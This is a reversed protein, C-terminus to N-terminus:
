VHLTRVTALTALKRAAINYVPHEDNQLQTLPQHRQVMSLLQKLDESNNEPTQPEHFDVIRLNIEAVLACFKELQHMQDDLLEEDDPTERLKGLTHAEEFDNINDLRDADAEIQLAALANEVIFHNDDGICRSVVSETAELSGDVPNGYHPADPNVLRQHVLTTSQVSPKM